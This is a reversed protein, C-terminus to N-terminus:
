IAIDTYDPEDSITYLEGDIFLKRARKAIAKTEVFDFGGSIVGGAVPVVKGLNIVGKSGFKTILRFGVKQNITKLAATPIKDIMAIALKNGMKIGTDKVIGGLGVGALTAYVLTQVQDSKLDYGGMYALAAIMRMQVYLVSSINAPIAIPLTILGGLGTLFGSTTCKTLQYNIFKKSATEIDDYKDLYDDALDTVSKSIKKFGAKDIGDVCQEYLKNLLDMIEEQTFQKKM